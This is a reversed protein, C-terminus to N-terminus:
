SVLLRFSTLRLGAIASVSLQQHFPSIVVVMKESLTTIPKGDPGPHILSPLWTTFIVRRDTM